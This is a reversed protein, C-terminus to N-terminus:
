VLPPTGSSRRHWQIYKSSLGHLEQFHLCVTARTSRNHVFLVFNLCSLQNLFTPDLSGLTSHSCSIGGEQAAALAAAVQEQILAALQAQTMNVRGFMIKM